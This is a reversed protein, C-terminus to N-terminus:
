TQIELNLKLVEVTSLYLMATTFRGGSIGLDSQQFLLNLIMIIIQSKFKSIVNGNVCYLIIRCLPVQLFQVTDQTATIM